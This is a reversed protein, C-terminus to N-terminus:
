SQRQPRQWPPMDRQLATGVIRELDALAFPKPLFYEICLQRVQEALAQTPYATILLVQTQPAQRKVHAALDVGNMSPMQVDTILLRVMRGQIRDLAEAPDTTAIIDYHPALDHLLRWLIRGVHLEDDVILIVPPLAPTTSGGWLAHPDFVTLDFTDRESVAVPGPTHSSMDSRGNM